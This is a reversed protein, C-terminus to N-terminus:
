QYVKFFIFVFCDARFSDSMKVNVSLVASLRVSADAAGRATGNVSPSVRSGPVATDPAQPGVSVFQKTANSPILVWLAVVESLTNRILKVPAPTVVEVDVPPITFTIMAPAPPPVPIKPLRKAVEENVEALELRPM